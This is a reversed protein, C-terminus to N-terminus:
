LGAWDRVLQRRAWVCDGDKNLARVCVAVKDATAMEIVYRGARTIGQCGEAQFADGQAAIDRISDYLTSIDRCGVTPESFQVVPDVAAAPMAVFASAAIIAARLM